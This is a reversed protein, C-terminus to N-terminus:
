SSGARLGLGDWMREYAGQTRRLLEMGPELVCYYRRAKGGREPLPEGFESGVLGQKQLRQLTVYVAARALKRGTRDRIAETINVGYAEEDCRLIALLVLLELDGLTNKPM